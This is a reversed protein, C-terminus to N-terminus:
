LSTYQQRFEHSRGMTAPNFAQALQAHSEGAPWAPVVAVGMAVLLALWWPCSTAILRMTPVPRVVVGQAAEILNFSTPTSLM